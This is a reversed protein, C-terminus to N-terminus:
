KKNPWKKSALASINFIIKITEQYIIFFVFNRKKFKSLQQLFMFITVRSFIM